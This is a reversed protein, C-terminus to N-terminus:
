RTREVKAMAARWRAVGSWYRDKMSALRSHLDEAKQYLPHHEREGLGKRCAECLTILNWPLTPGGSDPNRIHHPELRVDPADDASKGCIRCRYRDRTMVDMRQGPEPHPRSSEVLDRESSSFGAGLGIQVTRQPQYLDPLWKNALIDTILANGGLLFFYQAFEADNNLVAVPGQGVSNWRAIMREPAIRRPGRLEHGPKGDAWGVFVTQTEQSTQQHEDITLTLTYYVADPDITGIYGRAAIDRDAATPDVVPDAILAVAAPAAAPDPAATPNTLAARLQECFQEVTPTRATPDRRLAARLVDKVAENAELTALPDASSHEAAAPPRERLVHEATRALSYVDYAPTKRDDTDAEPPAYLATRPARATTPAYRDGTVLDFDILYAHGRAVLINSPKVDRHLLDRAHLHALAEGIRLVHALLEARPRKGILEQLSDGDIQEMVYFLRLGDQEVSSLIRVIAPHNLDALVEAGRLFRRRTPRDDAQHELLIKLAVRQGTRTDIARWVTGFGGHGCPEVLEYRDEAWREGRDLKPSSLWLRRVARIDDQRLSRLQELNDFFERDLMGRRKLAAVAEAFQLLPATHIGPLMDVLDDGDRENRLHVRLEEASFLSGLLKQLAAERTM